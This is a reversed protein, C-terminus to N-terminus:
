MGGGNRELTNTVLEKVDDPWERMTQHSLVVSKVYTAIDKAQGTEGHLSISHTSLPGLVAQIDAEPCSTVSLRLYPLRLEVLEQIIKLVEERPSTLGPTNPCEELGDIIIYLSGQRPLELMKKLCRLLADESPQGLIFGRNHESRLSSLVGCYSDSQVCLQTLLSSLLNRADQKASDRFDFYFFVVAALGVKRLDQVDEIITSSTL